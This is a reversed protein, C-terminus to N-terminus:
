RPLSAHQRELPVAPVGKGYHEELHSCQKKFQDVASCNLCANTLIILKAFNVPGLKKFIIFGDSKIPTDCSVLHLELCYRPHMFNSRDTGNLLEKLMQPHYELIERYILEQM